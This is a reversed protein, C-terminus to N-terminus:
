AKWEAGALEVAAVGLHDACLRLVVIVSAAENWAPLRPRRRAAPQECGEAAFRRAPLEGVGVRVHV